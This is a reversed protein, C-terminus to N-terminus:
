AIPKDGQKRTEKDRDDPVALLWLAGVAALASVLAVLRGELLADGLAAALGAALLLYVPPYNVVAYPPSGPDAYLRWIPTGARLLNVQALLPGEGYDIPYDFRLLQGAHLGFFVLQLALVAALAALCGWPLLRWILLPVTHTAPSPRTEIM